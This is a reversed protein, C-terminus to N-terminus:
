STSSGGWSRWIPWPAEDLRMTNLFTLSGGDRIVTMNRSFSLQRGGFVPRTQGTVFFVDDFLERLTGHPLQPPLSM